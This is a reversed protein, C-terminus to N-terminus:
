EAKYFTNQLWEMMTQVVYKKVLFFTHGGRDFLRYGNHDIRFATINRWFNNMGVLRDNKCHMLLIKKRSEQVYQQEAPSFQSKGIMESMNLGGLKGLLQWRWKRFVTMGVFFDTPSSIGALAIIHTVDPHNYGATLAILAGLSSGILLIHRHDFYQKSKIYQIIYNLDQQMGSVDKKHGSSSNHGRLNILIVAYGQKILPIALYAVRRFTSTYGHLIIAVPVIESSTQPYVEIGQLSIGSEPNLSLPYFKTANKKLLHLQLHPFEYLITSFM